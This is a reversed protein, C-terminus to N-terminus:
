VDSKRDVMRQGRGTDVAPAGRRANRDAGSRLGAPLHRSSERFNGEYQAVFFKYTMVNRYTKGPDLRVSPFQPQNPSDPFQQPEFVLSDWQRYLQGAKGAITGDMFNGSYFQLGPQNSWLEFGRGSTPETVRAM